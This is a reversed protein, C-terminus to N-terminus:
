KMIQGVSSASIQSIRRCLQSGLRIRKNIYTKRWSKGLNIYKPTTNSEDTTRYHLTVPKLKQEHERDNKGETQSIWKKYWYVM